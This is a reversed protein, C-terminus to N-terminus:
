GKAVFDKFRNINNCLVEKLGEDLLNGDGDFNKMAFQIGMEGPLVNVGVNNLFLRLYPLARMGGFKGPSASVIMAVKNRFAKLPAEDKTEPRSLWDITNMLLPSFFGNYETTSIFFGKSNFFIEKLKKIDQPLGNENEWDGQYIPMEYDALDILKSEIGIDIAYDYSYKVLKTNFSGNRTSGSIFLITM